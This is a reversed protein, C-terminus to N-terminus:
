EIIFGKREDIILKDKEEEKWFLVLIVYDNLKNKVKLNVLLM